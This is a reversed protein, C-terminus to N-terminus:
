ALAKLREEIKKLKAEGDALKQKEVEVVEPKARAIFQENDLKAHVGALFKQLQVREGELNVKVKNLDVVGELALHIDAGKLFASVTGHRHPPAKSVVTVESVNAMRVIHAQHASLFEGAGTAHVTVPVTVEPAVGYEARLSRISSIVDVVIQFQDASKKWPITGNKDGVLALTLPWPHKILLDADCQKVFEWLHETVFPCYPHLLILITRLADVLVYPNAEGKSLELYWDCFFDWVFSYLREGAESLRYTKLGFTVDNILQNLHYYLAQDALNTPQAESVEHPDVKAKECQALVFRSANWLKNIFNRYGAIKEEYLRFDNGPSQGVIM